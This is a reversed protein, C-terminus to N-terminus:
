MNRTITFKKTNAKIGLRAKVRGGGEFMSLSRGPKNFVTRFKPKVIAKYVAEIEKYQVTESFTVSKAKPLAQKEKDPLPAEDARGTCSIKRINDKSTTVTLNNFSPTSHIGDKQMPPDEPKSGLRAFVSKVDTIITSGKVAAIAVSDSIGLRAFVTQKSVTAEESAEKPPTGFRILRSKKKDLDVTNSMEYSKRKQAQVPLFVKSIPNRTCHELTRSALSLPQAATFRAAVAAVPVMNSVTTRQIRNWVTSKHVQKAHRLIAIVDGMQRIGMDWLNDKNLYLLMDNQIRNDMFTLAYTAAIDSPIGASTFFSVWMRTPDM